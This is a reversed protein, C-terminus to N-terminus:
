IRIQLRPNRGPVQLAAEIGQRTVRSRAATISTIAGNAALAAIGADGVRTREVAVWNLAPLRALTAM